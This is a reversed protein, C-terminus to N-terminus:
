PSRLFTSLPSETAPTEIKTAWSIHPRVKTRRLTTGSADTATSHPRDNRAVPRTTSADTATTHPSRVEATPRNQSADTATTPPKNRSADTATTPAEPRPTHPSPVSPDALPPGPRSGSKAKHPLLHHCPGPPEIRRRKRSGDNEEPASPSKMVVSRASFFDMSSDSACDDNSFTIRKEPNSASYASGSASQISRPKRASSDETGEGWVLDDNVVFFQIDASDTEDDGATTLAAVDPERPPSPPAPRPQTPTAFLARDRQLAAYPDTSTTPRDEGRDNNNNTDPSPRLVQPEQKFKRDEEQPAPNDGGDGGDDDGGDGGGGGGAAGGEQEGPYYNATIRSCRDLFAGYLTTLNTFRKTSPVGGYVLAHRLLRNILLQLSAAEYYLFFSTAPTLRVASQPAWRQQRAYPRRGGKYQLPGLLERMEDRSAPRHHYDVAYLCQWDETPDLAKVKPSIIGVDQYHLFVSVTEVYNHVVFGFPNSRMWDPVRTGLKVVDDRRLWENVKAPVVFSYAEEGLGGLRDDLMRLSLCLCRGSFTSLVLFLDEDEGTFSVALCAVQELDGEVQEALKTTLQTKATIYNFLDSQQASLVDTWRRPSMITAYRTLTEFAVSNKASVDKYRDHFAPGSLPYRRKSFMTNTEDDSLDSLNFRIVKVLTHSFRTYNSFISCSFSPSCCVLM